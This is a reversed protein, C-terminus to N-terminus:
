ASDYGRPTNLALAEDLTYPVSGITERESAPVHSLWEVYLGAIADSTPNRNVPQMAKLSRYLYSAFPVSPSGWPTIDRPDVHWSHPPLEAFVQSPNTGVQLGLRKGLHTLPAPGKTSTVQVPRLQRPALHRVNNLLLHPNTENLRRVMPWEPRGDYKAHPNYRDPKTTDVIQYSWTEARRGFAVPLLIERMRMPIEAASAENSIAYLWWRLRDRLLNTSGLYIRATPEHKLAYVAFVNPVSEILHKQLPTYQVM